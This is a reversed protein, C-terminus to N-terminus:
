GEWGKLGALIEYARTQTLMWAKESDLKAVFAWKFDQYFIRAKEVGIIEVLIALSLQAPGSGAYGWGFGTPSHKWVDLRLPLPRADKITIGDDELTGVRVVHSEDEISGIFVIQKRM